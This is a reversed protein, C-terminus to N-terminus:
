LANKCHNMAEHILINALSTSIGLEDAIMRHTYGHIRYLEFVRKTREPLKALAEAILELHQRNIAHTEPTGTLAPVQLGEEDTGFLESEFVDRRYHDIALNRVIQFLYALPQRVKQAAAMETIKIYADQVVDDSREWDGLIKYAARLLQTRNAIFLTGLGQSWKDVPMMM